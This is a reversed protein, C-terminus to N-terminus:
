FIVALSRLKNDALVIRDAFVRRHIGTGFAAAHFGNDPIITQEHHCRVNRMIANDAIANDHCVIRREAAVHLHAAM